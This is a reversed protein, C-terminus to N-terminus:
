ALGWGVALLPLGLAIVPISLVAMALMLPNERRPEPRTARISGTLALRGTKM